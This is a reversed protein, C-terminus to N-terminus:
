DRKAFVSHSGIKQPGSQKLGPIHEGRYGFCRVGIDFGGNNVFVTRSCGPGEWSHLLEAQGLAVELFAVALVRLVEREILVVGQQWVGCAVDRTQVARGRMRCPGDHQDLLPLENNGAGVAGVNGLRPALMNEVAIADLGLIQLSVSTRTQPTSHTRRRAGIAAVWQM